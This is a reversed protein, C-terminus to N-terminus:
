SSRDSGEHALDLAALVREVDAPGHYHVFGLRTAGGEELLGLRDMPEVAYYHGAYANVGSEALSATVDGPSLREHTISFTPTRWEPDDHGHLRWGPREALGDLVLATLSREHAAIAAMGVDLLYQAAAGCGAIAEFSATGTQWRDPGTDPSPRVRDPTLRALLAPDAAMVGAHPGFFKYPSCFIVDIGWGLRDIALHPAGHVADMITLAGVARAARVIEAHDVISGLANSALPFTVLRTRDTIAEAITSSDISGDSTIDIWRITADTRAALERWPAVNADHDLRTCVIEGGTALVEDLAHSLHFALTTMNPGFVISEPQSGLLVGLRERARTVVLEVAQSAAFPAGANANAAIATDRMADLASDLIQTGGPACTHVVDQQAALAPFRARIPDLDLLTM